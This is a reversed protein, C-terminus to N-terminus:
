ESSKHCWKCLYKEQGGIRGVSGAEYPFPCRNPDNVLGQSHNFCQNGPKCRLEPSTYGSGAPRTDYSGGNYECVAAISDAGYCSVITGGAANPNDGDKRINALLAIQFEKHKTGNVTESRTPLISSDDSMMMRYDSIRFYVRIPETYVTFNRNWPKLSNLSGVAKAQDSMVI